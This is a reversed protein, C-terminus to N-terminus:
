QLQKPCSNPNELMECVAVRLTEHKIIENYTKADGSKREQISFIIKWFLFFINKKEISKNMVPNM